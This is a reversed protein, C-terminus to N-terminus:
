FRFAVGVNVSTSNYELQDGVLEYDQLAAEHYLEAFISITDNVAYRAGLAVSGGLVTAEEEFGVFQIYNINMAGLGITGYVDITSSVPMSYRALVQFANVEQIRDTLTSFDAQTQSFQLGVGINPSVNYFGRLGYIADSAVDFLNGNLDLEREFSYGGFVEISIDQAVAPSAAALGFSAALLLNKM